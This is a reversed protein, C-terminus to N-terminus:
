FYVHLWAMRLSVNPMNWPKYAPINFIGASRDRHRLPSILSQNLRSKVKTDTTQCWTGLWWKYKTSLPGWSCDISIFKLVISESVISFVSALNTASAAYLCCREQEDHLHLEETWPTVLTLVSKAKQPGSYIPHRYIPYSCFMIESRYSTSWFRREFVIFVVCLGFM